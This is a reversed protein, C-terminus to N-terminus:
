TGPLAGLWPGVLYRRTVLTGDLVKLEALFFEKFDVVFTPIIEM